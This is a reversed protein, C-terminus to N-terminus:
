ITPSPDNLNQKQSVLDTGSKVLDRLICVCKFFVSMDTSNNESSIILLLQVSILFGLMITMYGFKNILPNNSKM